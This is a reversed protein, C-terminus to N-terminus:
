WFAFFEVLQVKGSALNVSVPNTAHLEPDGLPTTETPAETPPVTTPEDQGAETSEVVPLDTALTEATPQTEEPVVAPEETLTDVPQELFEASQEVETSIHTPLESVQVTPFAQVCGTLIVTVLVLCFIWKTIKLDYQRFRVLFHSVQKFFHHLSLTIFHCNALRNKFSVGIM